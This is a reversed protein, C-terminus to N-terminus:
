RYSAAPAYHTTFSIDLSSLVAMLTDPTTPLSAKFQSSADM